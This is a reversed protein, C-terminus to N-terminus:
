TNTVLPAGSDVTIKGGVVHFLDIIYLIFECNEEQEFSINHLGNLILPITHPHNALEGANAELLASNRIIFLSEQAFRRKRALDYPPSFLPQITEFEKYGETVYWEPWEFLADIVGPISKLLFQENFCLRILRDLSWAIESLIGSRLSLTM